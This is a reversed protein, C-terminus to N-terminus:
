VLGQPAAVARILWMYGQQINTKGLALARHHESDPTGYKETRSKILSAVADIRAQLLAGDAKLANVLQLEDDDLKRYGSVNAVEPNEGPRPAPDPQPTLPRQRDHDYPQQTSM